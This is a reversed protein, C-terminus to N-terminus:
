MQSVLIPTSEGGVPACNRIQGIRTGLTENSMKDGTKTIRWGCALTRKPRYGVNLATVGIFRSGLVVHPQFDSM